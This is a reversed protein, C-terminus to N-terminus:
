DRMADAFLGSAMEYGPKIAEHFTKGIEPFRTAEAAALRQLAVYNYSSIRKLTAFGFWHLWARFEKPETKADYDDPKTEVVDQVVALLLAEKSQFHNYLTTKSGGLAAALQSMSTAAYGEKFFLKQAVAVIE